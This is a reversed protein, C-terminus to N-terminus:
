DCAGSLGGHQEGIQTAVSRKRLTERGRLDHRQEILEESHERLGRRRLATPNEMHGTIAHHGPKAPEVGRMIAGSLPESRTMRHQLEEPRDSSAPPVLQGYFRADPNAQM